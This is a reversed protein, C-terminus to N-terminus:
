VTAKAALGSILADIAEHSNAQGRIEALGCCIRDIFAEMPALSGERLLCEKPPVSWEASVFKALIEEYRESLVKNQPDLGFIVLLGTPATDLTLFALDPRYERLCWVIKWVDGTWVQTSRERRAQRPHNPFVDDIVVVSAPSAHREINIFDRLVFEFLHMGDIFALDIRKGALLADSGHEFFADSTDTVIRATSPLPYRIDPAPDVGVADCSALCLSGGNRVGIELYFEPRLAQQIWRLVDLYPLVGRTIEPDDVARESSPSSLTLASAAKEQAKASEAVPSNMPRSSSRDPVASFIFNKKFVAWLPRDPVDPDLWTAVLHCNGSRALAAMGEPMFVYRLAMASDHGSDSSGSAVIVLGGDSVVRLAEDFLRWFQDARSLVDDLVIIDAQGSAIPLVSWDSLPVDVQGQAMAAMMVELGQDNAWGRLGELAGPLTICVVRLAKGSVRRQKNLSVVLENVQSSMLRM